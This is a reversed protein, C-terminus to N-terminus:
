ASKLTKLGLAVMAEWKDQLYKEQYHLFKEETSLAVGGPLLKMGFAFIGACILLIVALVLILIKMAKKNSGASSDELTKAYSYVPEPQTSPKPEEAVVKSEEIGSDSGEVTNSEMTETSASEMGELKEGCHECFKGDEQVEQGCNPCNKM